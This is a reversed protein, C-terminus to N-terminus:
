RPNNVVRSDAASAMMPGTEQQPPTEYQRYSPMQDLRVFTYGEEILPPVVAAVLAASQTHICHMLVVGGNKRRIERMYGKACTAADWGRHWCDWDSASLVYGDDSFSIEGGEDWYVPGVYKRLRTDANLERAFAPRWSGFPARFYLRTGAPMLPAILNDVRRVQDLLLEPNDAYTQGLFPHTASHNALLHGEAAIRALIDPHTEAMRGVIFFTAKVGAAKLADLVAPTHDNPGDDFTLAVLHSHRLGSHFINAPQFFALDSGSARAAPQALAPPGALLSLAALGGIAAALRGM